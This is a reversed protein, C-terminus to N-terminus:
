CNRIGAELKERIRNRLSAPALVKVDPQWSLIWRVLEKWGATKMRLEVSGNRREIIKQKKCWIREKIYSAVKQSFLLRVDMTEGGTIGMFDKLYSPATRGAPMKFSQETQKIEKIRSIAYTRFEGSDDRFALAYWNGHYQVLHFPRITRWGKEGNFKTYLIEIVNRAEVAKAVEGWIERDVVVHDEQLITYEGTLAEVDATFSGELARGIKALLSHMDPELATGHYSDLIKRAVFFAFVESRSLDVASLKWQVDSLYYGKRSDDYEIPAQEDDRLYDLDRIVTRWTVDMDQAMRGASALEGRKMGERILQLIRKLRGTQPRTLNKM